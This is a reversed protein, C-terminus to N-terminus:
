GALIFIMKSVFNAMRVQAIASVTASVMNAAPQEFPVGDGFSTLCGRGDFRIGGRYPAGFYNALSAAPPEGTLGRGADM